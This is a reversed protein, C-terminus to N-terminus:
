VSRTGPGCANAVEIRKDRKGGLEFAQTIGYDYKQEKILPGQLSVPLDSTGIQLQPNPRLRATIKEADAADIDYRAAILQLNQKMFIQVADSLTLLRTTPPTTRQTPDQSAPSIKFLSARWREQAVMSPAAIALLALAPACLSFRRCRQLRYPYKIQTENLYNEANHAQDDTSHQHM